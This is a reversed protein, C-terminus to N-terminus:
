ELFSSPSYSSVSATGTWLQPRGRRLRRGEARRDLERLANSVRPERAEARRIADARVEHARPPRAERAPAGRDIACGRGAASEYDEYTLVRKGTEVIATERLPYPVVIEEVGASAAAWELAAYIDNFEPDPDNAMGARHHIWFAACAGASVLVAVSLASLVLSSRGPPTVARV